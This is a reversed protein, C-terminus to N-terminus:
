KKNKMDSWNFLDAHNVVDKGQESINKTRFDSLLYSIVSAEKQRDDKKKSLMPLLANGINVISKVNKDTLGDPIDPSKVM